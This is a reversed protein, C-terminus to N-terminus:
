EPNASYYGDAAMTEGNTVVNMGNMFHDVSDKNNEPNASYYGDAGERSAGSDAVLNAGLHEQSDKGVEDPMIGHSSVGKDKKQLPEYDKFNDKAGSSVIDERGWGLEGM